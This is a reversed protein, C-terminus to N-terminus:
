INIYQTNLTIQVQPNETSTCYTDVTYQKTSMLFTHLSYQSAQRDINQATHQTGGKMGHTKSPM